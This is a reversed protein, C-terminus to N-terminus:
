SRYTRTYTRASGDSYHDRYTIVTVHYTYRHGCDDYAVRCQRCRDVECTSVKYPACYNYSRRYSGAQAEPLTGFATLGVFSLLLLAKTTMAILLQNNTNNTAAGTPAASVFKM